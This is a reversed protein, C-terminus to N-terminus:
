HAIDEPDILEDELFQRHHTWGRIARLGGDIMIQNTWFSGMPM